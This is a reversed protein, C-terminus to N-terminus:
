NPFDLIGVQERRNSTRGQGSDLLSSSSSQSESSFVVTRESSAKDATYIYLLYTSDEVYMYAIRIDILEGVSPGTNPISPISPGQVCLMWCTIEAHM